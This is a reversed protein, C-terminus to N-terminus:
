RYPSESYMSANVPSQYDDITKHQNVMLAIQMQLAEIMYAKRDDLARILQQKAESDVAGAKIEAVVSLSTSPSTSPANQEEPSGLEVDLKELLRAATERELKKEAEQKDVRERREIRDYEIPCAQMFLYRDESDVFIDKDRLFDRNEDRFDAEGLEFREIRNLMSQMRIVKGQAVNAQERNKELKKDQGPGQFVWRKPTTSAYNKQYHKYVGVPYEKKFETESLSASTSVREGWAKFALHLENVKTYAGHGTGPTHLCVHTLDVARTSEHTIRAKMGNCLRPLRPARVKALVILRTVAILGRPLPFPQSTVWGGVLSPVTWLM